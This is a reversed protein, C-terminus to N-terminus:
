EGGRVPVVAQPNHGIMACIGLWASETEYTERISQITLYRCDRAMPRHTLPTGDSRQARACVRVAPPLARAPVAGGRRPLRLRPARDYHGHEGVPERAATPKDAAAFHGVARGHDAPYTASHPRRNCDRAGVPGHDARSRPVRSFGLAAGTPQARADCALSFCHAQGSVRRWGAGEGRWTRGTEKGPGEGQGARRGARGGETGKGRATGGERGTGYRIAVEGLSWVANNCVSLHMTNLNAIQVVVFDNAVPELYIFCAGAMDGLLAFASQRVEPEIDQPLFRM